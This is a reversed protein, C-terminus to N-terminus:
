GGCQGLSSGSTVGLVFEGHGKLGAVERTVAELHAGKRPLLRDTAEEIQLDLHDTRVRGAGGGLCHCAGVEGHDHPAGVRAGAHAPVTHALHVADDRAHLVHQRSVIAEADM